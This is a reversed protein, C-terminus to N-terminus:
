FCLLAHHPKMRNAVNHKELLRGPFASLANRVLCSRAVIYSLNGPPKWIHGPMGVGPIETSLPLFKLLEELAADDPWALLSVITSIASAGDPRPNPHQNVGLLWSARDSDSFDEVEVRIWDSHAVRAVTKLDPSLIPGSLRVEYSGRKDFQHALHLPLRPERRFNSFPWQSKAPCAPKPAPSLVQGNRRIEFEYGGFNWPCLSFPYEFRVNMPVEVDIWVPMHVHAPGKFRLIIDQDTFEADIAKSCTEGVCVQVPVMGDAPGDLPIQFNIQDARMNRNGMPGLYMLGAPQRGILVRVGCVETPFPEPQQHPAECWPSPLLNWGLVSAYEGRTFARPGPAGFPLLHDRDFRPIEQGLAACALLGSLVLQIRM